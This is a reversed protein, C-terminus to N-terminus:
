THNEQYPCIQYNDLISIPEECEDCSLVSDFEKLYRRAERISSIFAGGKSFRSILWRLGGVIGPPTREDTLPSLFPTILVFDRNDYVAVQLSTILSVIEKERASMNSADILLVGATEPLAEHLKTSGGLIGLLISRSPEPIRVDELLKLDSTRMAENILSASVGTMYSLFEALTLFYSPGLNGSFGFWIENPSITKLNIDSLRDLAEGIWDILIVRRFQALEKALLIAVGSALKISTCLVLNSGFSLELLSSRRVKQETSSRSPWRVPVVALFLFLPVFISLLTLLLMKSFDLGGRLYLGLSLISSAILVNYIRHMDPLIGRKLEVLAWMLGIFILALSILAKPSSLGRKELFGMGKM